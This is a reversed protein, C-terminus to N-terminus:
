NANLYLNYINYTFFIVWVGEIMRADIWSYLVFIIEDIM